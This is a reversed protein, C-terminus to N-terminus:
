SDHFDEQIFELREAPSIGQKQIYNKEGLVKRWRDGCRQKM